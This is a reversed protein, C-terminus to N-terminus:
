YTAVSPVSKYSIDFTNPIITLPGSLSPISLGGFWPKFTVTVDAQYSHQKPVQKVVAKIVTLNEATLKHNMQALGATSSHYIAATYAGESAAIKAGEFVTWAQGLDLICFVMALVFPLTLALEVLNQGRFGVPKRFIPTVSKLAFSM